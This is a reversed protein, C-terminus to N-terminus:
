QEVRSSMAQVSGSCKQLMLESNNKDALAKMLKQVADERSKMADNCAILEADSEELADASAKAVADQEKVAANFKEFVVDRDIIARYHDSRAREAWLGIEKKL